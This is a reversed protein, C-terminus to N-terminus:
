RGDGGAGAGAGGEKWVELNVANITVVPVVDGSAAQVQGSRLKGEVEVLQGPALAAAQAALKGWCSVTIAEQRGNQHTTLVLRACDLVVGQVKVKKVQPRNTVRGIIIAKQVAVGGWRVLEPEGGGKLFDDLGKAASLPWVAIEVQFGALALMGALQGLARRVPKKERWDADYAVVVRDAGADLLAQVLGARRWLAVGPVALFPEGLRWACYDAKLPGETVWVRAPRSRWGAAHLAARAPAGGPKGASSLWVYKGKGLDRDRRVQLGAIRGEFDRFPILIGPPGALCPGKEDWYFGPVGSLDASAAVEEALKRRGRPPLTRYQKRRVLEEPFGRSLLHELHERSLSLASLLAAYARHLAEPGAPPVAAAPVPPLARPAPEAGGAGGAGCKHCYWVGSKGKHPNYYMHDPDGCAPCRGVYERGGAVPRLEGLGAVWM